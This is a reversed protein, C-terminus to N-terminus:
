DKGGGPPKRKGKKPVTKKISRNEYSKGEKNNKSNSKKSSKDPM